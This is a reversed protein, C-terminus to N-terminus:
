LRSSRPRNRMGRTVVSPRETSISAVSSSMSSSPMSTRYTRRASCQFGVCFSVAHAVSPISMESSIHDFSNTPEERRDLAHTHSALSRWSGRSFTPRPRAAARAARVGGYRSAGAARARAAVCGLNRRADRRPEACVDHAPTLWPWARWRFPRASLEPRQACKGANDFRRAECRRRRCAM